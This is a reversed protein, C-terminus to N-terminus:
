SRFEYFFPFKQCSPPRSTGFYFYWINPLKKKDQDWKSSLQLIQVKKEEWPNFSMDVFFVFNQSSKQLLHQIEWYMFYKIVTELFPSITESKQLKKRIIRNKLNWLNNLFFILYNWKNWTRLTQKSLVYIDVM